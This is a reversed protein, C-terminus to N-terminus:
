RGKVQGVEPSSLQIVGSQTSTSGVFKIDRFLNHMQMLTLTSHTHELRFQSKLPISLVKPM